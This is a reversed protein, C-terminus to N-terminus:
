CETAEQQAQANLGVDARRASWVFIGIHLPQVAREVLFAQLNPQGGRKTLHSLCGLTEEPMVVM